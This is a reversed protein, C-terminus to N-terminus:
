TTIGPPCPNPPCTPEKARVSAAALAARRDKRLMRATKRCRNCCYLQKRQCTLYTEGCHACPHPRERGNVVKM